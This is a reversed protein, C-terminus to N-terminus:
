LLPSDVQVGLKCVFASTFRRPAPRKFAQTHGRATTRGSWSSTGISPFTPRFSESADVREDGERIDDKSNKQRAGAGCFNEYPMLTIRKSSDMPMCIIMDVVESMLLDIM